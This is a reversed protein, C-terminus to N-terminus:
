AWRELYPAASRLSPVWFRLKQATGKVAPNAGVRCSLWSTGSSRVLLGPASAFRSAVWRWSSGSASRISLRNSKRGWPGGLMPSRRAHPLSVPQAAVPRALALWPRAARRFALRAYSSLSSRLLGRRRAARVSSLVPPRPLARCRWALVPPASLQAMVSPLSSSAVLALM